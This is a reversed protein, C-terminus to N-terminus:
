TNQWQNGNDQHLQQHFYVRSCLGTYSSHAFSWLSQCFCLFSILWHHTCRWINGRPLRVHLVMSVFITPPLLWHLFPVWIPQVSDLVPNRNPAQNQQVSINWMLYERGTYSAYRSKQLRVPRKQKIYLGGINAM